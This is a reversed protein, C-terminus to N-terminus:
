LSSLVKSLNLHSAIVIHHQSTCVEQISEPTSMDIVKFLLNRLPRAQSGLPQGPSLSCAVGLHVRLVALCLLM